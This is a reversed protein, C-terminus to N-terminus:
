RILMSDESTSMKLFRRGLKGEIRVEICDLHITNEGDNEYPGVAVFVHEPNQKSVIIKQVGEFEVGGVQKGHQAPMPLVSFDTQVALMYTNAMRLILRQQLQVILIVDWTVNGDYEYPEKGTADRMDLVQNWTAGDDVSKFVIDDAVVYLTRNDIPKNMLHCDVFLRGTKTIIGDRTASKPLGAHSEVWSGNAGYETSKVLIQDVYIRWTWGM